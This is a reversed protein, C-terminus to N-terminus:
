SIGRELCDLVSRTVNSCREHFLSEIRVDIQSIVEIIEVWEDISNVVTEDQKLCIRCIDNLKEM